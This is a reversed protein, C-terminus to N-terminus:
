VDILGEALCRAITQNYAEDFWDPDFARHTRLIDIKAPECLWEGTKNTAAKVALLLPFNVVGDVYDVAPTHLFQKLTSDSRADAAISNCETPWEDNAHARRLVMLLSNDGDFLRQNAQPGVVLKLGLISRAADPNIVASAIGLMYALAGHAFQLDKIKTEVHTRSIYTGDTDGFLCVCQYRLLNMSTKWCALPISEWTFPLEEAFREAFGSPFRGFRFALASMAMPFHAFRRWIDLTALPLHGILSALQELELWSPHNFDSAMAQIVEDIANEREKTDTIAMAGSVVSSTEVEGFVTWLTPRFPVLADEGPYILWSGAERSEPSFEWTGNANGGTDSVVLLIAEDGPRELRAALIPLTSLKEPDLDGDGFAELRVNTDGRHLRAAYRAVNLTFHEKGGIRILIKVIADPCDDSSLLHSIDTVYDQLRVVLSIAGPLNRLHHVRQLKGHRASITLTINATHHGGLVMLRTGLLQQVAILAGKPLEQGAGDTARVGKAPFPLLLRVSATTHPWFIEIEVREPVCVGSEVSLELVLGNGVARCAHGINVDVPRAHKAQWYEIHISGSNASQGELRLAAQQPLLIM